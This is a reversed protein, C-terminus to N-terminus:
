SSHNGACMRMVCKTKVFQRIPKVNAPKVDLKRPESSADHIHLPETILWKLCRTSLHNHAGKRLHSGKFVLIWFVDKWIAFRSNPPRLRWKWGFVCSCFLMSQEFVIQIFAAIIQGLIYYSNLEARQIKQMFKSLSCSQWWLSLFLLEHNDIMIDIRDSLM